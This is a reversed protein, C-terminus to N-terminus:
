ILAAPGPVGPAFTIDGFGDGAGRAGAGRWGHRGGGGGGGGPERPVTPRLGCRLLETRLLLCHATAIYADAARVVAAAADGDGGGPQRVLM